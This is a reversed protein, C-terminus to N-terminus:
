RDESKTKYAASQHKLCEFWGNAARFYQIVFRTATHQSNARLFTGTIVVSTATAQKLVSGAFKGTRSIIVTEPEEKSLFRGGQIYTKKTYKRNKVTNNFTIQMTQLGAPAVHMEKNADVRALIM